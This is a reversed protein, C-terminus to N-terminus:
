TAQRLKLSWYNLKGLDVGASDSVKLKWQGRISEGILNQLDPTTDLTYTTIINDARGGTRNHLDIKTNQPSILSVILDGVYTHTIDVSVEIDQVQGSANTTVSREIGIPDNDPISVGPSDELLIEDGEGVKGKIKLGWSNLRGM